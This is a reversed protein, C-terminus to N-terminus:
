ATAEARGARRRERETVGGWVGWREGAADAYAACEVMVPCELCLRVAAAQEAKTEGHWLERQWGACPVEVSGTM